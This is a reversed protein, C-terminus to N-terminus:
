WRIQQFLKMLKKGRTPNVAAVHSIRGRLSARFDPHGDRNQMQPGSRLCNTLIAKLTEYEGRPTNIKQNVTLGLVQQRSGRRMTQTKRFNVSFGEDMAIAAASTAFRETRRAFSAEGSFILDDAYRTYTIDLSQCLGFLRRDLRFAAANALGPSTPAGQPLRSRQLLRDDSHIPAATCLMALVNAVSWSYGAVQMLSRIRATRISAFFNKLDIRLVVAKGVHESACTVIGRHKRFGHAADHIPIRDVLESKLRQQVRKLVPRPNEIWRTTGDRKRYPTRLYHDVSTSRRRHPLTLWDLAAPSALSLWDVLQGENAIPPVPMPAQRPKGTVAPSLDITKRDKFLQVIVKHRSLFSRLHEPPTKGRGHHRAVLDAVLQRRKVTRRGFVDAIASSVIEPDGHYRYQLRRYLLNIFQNKSIEGM